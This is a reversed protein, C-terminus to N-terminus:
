GDKPPAHRGLFTGLHERRRSLEEIIGFLIARTPARRSGQYLNYQRPYSDVKYEKDNGPEYEPILFEQGKRTIDQELLSM